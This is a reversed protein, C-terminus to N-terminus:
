ICHNLVTVGQTDCYTKILKWRAYDVNEFSWICVIFLLCGLRSWAKIIAVLVISLAYPQALSRSQHYRRYKILWAYTFRHCILIVINHDLLSVLGSRPLFPKANNRSDQSDQLPFFRTRTCAIVLNIHIPFFTNKIFNDLLHLTCMMANYGCLQLDINIGYTNSYFNYIFKSPM